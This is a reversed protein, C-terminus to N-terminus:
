ILLAASPQICGADRGAATLLPPELFRKLAAQDPASLCGLRNLLTIMALEAARQAGDSVKLAIGFGLSRLAACYVGEAGSKLCVAAGVTTMIATAMGGTGEVLLPATTMANILRNIASRRADHFKSPDALRAMAAALSTLSMAVAPIGCGDLGRPARSLDLGTMEAMARMVHQQVLHDPRSYGRTPKRLCQAVCLFGAHQGSCNNHLQSPSIGDRALSKRSSEDAPNEAGCELDNESLGIRELWDSIKRVHIPEGRHSACSLALEDISLDYKDAAGTEILPLAQVPKIASRPFVPVEVDGISHVIKGAADLIAVAGRHCSEIANGRRVQVLVPSGGFTEM